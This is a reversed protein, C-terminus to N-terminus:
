SVCCMQCVNENEKKQGQLKKLVDPDYISSGRLPKMSDTTEVATASTQSVFFDIEPRQSSFLDEELSVLSNWIDDLDSTVSAHFNAVFKEKSKQLVLGRLKQYAAILIPVGDSFNRSPLNIMSLQFAQDAQAIKSIRIKSPRKLFICAEYMCWARSTFEQMDYAPATDEGLSKFPIVLIRVSNSIIHVMNTLCCNKETEECPSCCFDFWIYEVVRMTRVVLSLVSLITGVSDDPHTKSLWRHSVYVYRPCGAWHKVALLKSKIDKFFPLVKGQLLIDKHLLYVIPNEPTVCEEM